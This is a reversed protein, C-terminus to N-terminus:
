GLSKELRWVIVPKRGEMHGLSHDVDAVVAWGHKEYFARARDNGKRCQLWIRIHGARRLADEAAAILPAAIGRGHYAPLVFVQGIGDGEWSAFGVVEDGVVAAVCDPLATAIRTNFFEIPRRAAVDPDLAAHSSHWADHWVRALAPIDGASARRITVHDAPGSM